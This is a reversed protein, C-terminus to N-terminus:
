DHEFGSLIDPDRNANSFVSRDVIKVIDPGSSLAVGEMNAPLYGRTRSKYFTSYKLDTGKYGEWMLMKIDVAYNMATVMNIILDKNNELLEELELLRNEYLDKASQLGKETKLTQVKKDYEVKLKERVYQLLDNYLSKVDFKTVKKDSLNANEFTNWYNMFLPNETLEEYAPNGLLDHEAAKLYEYTAQIKELSFAKKNKKVELNPTLLYIKSPVNNLNNIDVNFSQTKEELNGRYITHFCIGFESNKIKEFDPNSETFAYIIKNPQFTLYEQGEIEVTQLNNKTYLCDGQWAEGAPICKALDLCYRLKSAMDPRDGYKEEIDEYTSLCNKNSTTFSKLCISNDPYGEFKSWIVCAPAGDIKVTATIGDPLSTDFSSIFKEIKDNMEEIGDKGLLILDEFHTQHNNKRAKFELINM